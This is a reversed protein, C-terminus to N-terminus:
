KLPLLNWRIMLLYAESKSRTESQAFQRGETGGLNM